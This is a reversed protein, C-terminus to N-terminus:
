TGVGFPIRTPAAGETGMMAASHVANRGFRGNIRDMTDALANLRRQGAFMPSEVSRDATLKTLEVGVRLVDGARGKNNDQM